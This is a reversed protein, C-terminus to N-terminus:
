TTSADIWPKSWFNRTTRSFAKSQKNRQSPHVFLSSRLFPLLGDPVDLVAEGVSVDLQLFFTEMHSKVGKVDLTPFRTFHLRKEPVGLRKAIALTAKDDVEDISMRTGAFSPFPIFVGGSHSATIKVVLVSNLIAAFGSHAKKSDKGSCFCLTHRRLPVQSEDM